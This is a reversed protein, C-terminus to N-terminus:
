DALGDSGSVIVYVARSARAEDLPLFIFDIHSVIFIVCVANDDDIFKELRAKIVTKSAWVTPILYINYQTRVGELIKQESPTLM